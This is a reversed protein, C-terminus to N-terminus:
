TDLYYYKFRVQIGAWVSSVPYSRRGFSANWDLVILGAWLLERIKPIVM